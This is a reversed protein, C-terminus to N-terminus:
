RSWCPNSKRDPHDNPKEDVESISHKVTRSEQIWLLFVILQLHFVNGFLIGYDLAIFISAFYNLELSTQGCTVNFCGLQDHFSCVSVKTLLSEGLVSELQLATRWWDSSENCQSYSVCKNGVQKYLPSGDQNKRSSCVCRHTQRHCEAFQDECYHDHYFCEEGLWRKRQCINSLCIPKGLVGYCDTKFQCVTTSTTDLEPDDKDLRM